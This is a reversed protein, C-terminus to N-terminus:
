EKERKSRAEDMESEMRSRMRSAEDASMGPPPASM